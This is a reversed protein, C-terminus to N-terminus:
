QWDEEEDDDWKSNRMSRSGIDEPNEIKPTSNDLVQQQPPTVGSAAIMKVTQMKVITMTPAIYTKKM